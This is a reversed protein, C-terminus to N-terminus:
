STRHSLPKTTTDTLTSHTSALALTLTAHARPLSSPAGTRACRASEAASGLMLRM